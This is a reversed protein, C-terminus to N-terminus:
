YKEYIIMISWRGDFISADWGANAAANDWRCSSNLFDTLIERNNIMGQDHMSSSM